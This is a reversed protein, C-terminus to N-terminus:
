IVRYHLLVAAKRGCSTQGGGTLLCRVSNKFFCENDFVESVAPILRRLLGFACKENYRDYWMCHVGMSRMINCCQEAELFFERLRRIIRASVEQVTFVGCPNKRYDAKLALASEKKKGQKM